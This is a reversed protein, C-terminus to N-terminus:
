PSHNSILDRKVAGNCTKKGFLCVECHLAHDNVNLVVVVRTRSSNIALQDPKQISEKGTVTALVNAISVAIRLSGLGKDRQM